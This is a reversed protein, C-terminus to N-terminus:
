LGRFSVHTTRDKDLSSSPTKTYMTEFLPLTNQLAASLPRRAKQNRSSSDIQRLTANEKMPHVTVISLRQRRFSPGDPLRLKDALVNYMGPVTGTHENYKNTHLLRCILNLYLSKESHMQITLDYFPYLMQLITM